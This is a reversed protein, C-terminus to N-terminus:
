FEGVLHWIKRKGYNCLKQGGICCCQGHDSLIGVLPTSIADAVQGILLIIGSLGSPIQKTSINCQIHVDVKLNFILFTEVLLVYQLYVLLYSFWVSACLDNLVHGTGFSLKQGWSISGVGGAAMARCLKQREFNVKSTLSSFIYQADDTEPYEILALFPVFTKDVVKARTASNCRLLSTRPRGTPSTAWCRGNAGSM